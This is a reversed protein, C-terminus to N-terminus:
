SHKSEYINKREYFAERGGELSHMSEEAWSRVDNQNTINTMKDDFPNGIYTKYEGNEHTRFVSTYPLTRVAINANHTAVVVYKRQKALNTILPRIDTDIYSNGMGLEPEDLFYAEADEKLTQQLLLIGKEGNSPHYETGDETTIQKSLGLFPKVSSINNEECLTNFTEILSAIDQSFVNKSIELLLEKIERLKRIGFSNFEDTRSLQCLMRYKCNIYIKGKDELTGLLEKENFEPVTLAQLIRRVALNLKIRSDAFAVLGCTSPRSVTDSNRDALSKIREITYNVLEIATENIIDKQRKAYIKSELATLLEKLVSVENEGMYYELDISQINQIAEGISEKDTKHRNFNTDIQFIEQVSETIKMRAKNGSNGKTKVWNMYLGISIPNSDSWNKIFRFEEECSEAHVINLDSNMGRTSLLTSFDESRESAIYKKCSHGEKVMADYLSKLIETKGTGKQGFIINVDPYIPLNLNVSAHPKGIMIIPPKQSLLTKVVGADRKSLLLFESFSGVPLRLEAFTSKEYQAWDKVDSGIIANFNNSILVGLTRHDRPEIFVRAPDNVLTMLNDRDEDTIAPKKNHFHPIFIADCSGYAICIDELSHVCSNLDKGEFLNKTKEDFKDIDDPNCIVILHFRDNRGKADIEIGPWVLCIDKVASQLDYFQKIDFCNHNTIAAIKVDAMEIKARFVDPTVNRGAGDGKKTSMTHCHLDIKM